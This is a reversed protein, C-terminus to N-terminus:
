SHPNTYDYKVITGELKVVKTRDFMAGSHHASVPSMVVAISAVSIWRTATSMVM